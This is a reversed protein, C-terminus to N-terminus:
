MLNQEVIFKKEIHTPYYSMKMKRLGALGLDQELNVYTFQTQLEACLQQLLVQYVGAAEALGYQFHITFTNANLQSGLIFGLFKGEAEIYGGVFGCCNFCDFANELAKRQRASPIEYISDIKLDVSWIDFLELAKDKFERTIRQYKFDSYSRMFKHIHNRKSAFKTGKLDVLTKTEYIYDFQEPIETIKYGSLDNGLKTLLANSICIRGCHAICTSITEKILNDGIPDLFYPPLNYPRILICLNGNIITVQPIDHELWLYLYGAGLDSICPPYKQLWKILENKVTYDLTYLEPFIPILSTIEDHLRMEGTRM